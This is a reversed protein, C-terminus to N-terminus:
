RELAQAAEADITSLRSQAEEATDAVVTIHGIKRNKTVGKKGYWHM